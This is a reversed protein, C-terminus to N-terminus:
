RQRRTSADPKGRMPLPFAQWRRDGRDHVDTYEVARSPWNGVFFAIWLSSNWSVAASSSVDTPRDGVATEGAVGPLSVASHLTPPETPAQPMSDRKGAAAGAPEGAM